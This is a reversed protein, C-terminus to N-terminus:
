EPLALEVQSRRCVPECRPGNPRVTKYAISQTTNLLEAGDRSLVASVDAPTEQLTATLTYRDPVTSCADSVADPARTASCFVAAAGIVVDAPPECAVHNGGGAPPLNTPIEFNCRYAQGSVDITLTYSGDRWTGDPTDIM